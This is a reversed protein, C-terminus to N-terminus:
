LELTMPADADTPRKLELTTPVDLGGLEGFYPEWLTKVATLYPSNLVEDCRTDFAEGYVKKYYYKMGKCERFHLATIRNIRNIDVKSGGLAVNLAFAAACCPDYLFDHALKFAYEDLGQFEDEVGCRLSRGHSAEYRRHLERFDARTYTSFIRIWTDVEAKKVGKTEIAAHVDKLDQALAEQTHPYRTGGVVANVLKAWMYKNGVDAAIDNALQRQYLQQYIRRIERVESAEITLLVDVLAKEDTGAGKTAARLLECILVPRPKFVFTYLPGLDTHVTSAVFSEFPVGTLAQLGRIAGRLEKASTVRVVGAIQEHQEPDKFLAEVNTALDLM